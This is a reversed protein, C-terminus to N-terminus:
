FSFKATKLLLQDCHLGTLSLSLGLPFCTWLSGSWWPCTTPPPLLVDHLHKNLLCINQIIAWFTQGSFITSQSNFLTVKRSLLDFVTSFIKRIQAFFIQSLCIKILQPDVSWVLFDTPTQVYNSWPRSFWNAMSVMWFGILLCYTRIRNFVWIM